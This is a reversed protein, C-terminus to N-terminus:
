NAFGYQPPPPLKRSRTLDNKIRVPAEYSIWYGLADSTHTRFFYPDKRNYTKLIGGRGDRKVQELDEILKQCSPDIVLDILGGDGKLARNLANIRDPVPPNKEPVKQRIPAQFQAMENHIIAYDSKGTQRSRGKSTADGYLWVEAGHWPVAEYFMQCMDAISGEDIVLERMVFFRTGVRQGILSCMPEVNFDWTWCLPRRPNLIPSPKVHIRRDFSVYARAGGIGPLWEGGLRIKHQPTGPPYITELFDVEDSPLHPNDYISAGFVGVNELRGEKFPALIDHYVWSIGGGGDPPLITATCFFNLPRTGVRIVAEEYIDKPHEEDFHIWDKETGQYKKRGSDASKFGIISGNKLKLIQDSVRWSDIEHEPIFPDHGISMGAGNDFYKPQIVDRSTPFDLASVWGSTARDTVAVHKGDIVSHSQKVAESQDGFRAITAGIFAGADSKGSRNAAVFWNHKFKRLLVADIFDRQKPHPQFKFLPDEARRRNMESALTAFGEQLKRVQAPTSPVTQSM